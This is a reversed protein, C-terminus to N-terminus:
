SSLFGGFVSLVAYIKPDQGNPFNVRRTFNM